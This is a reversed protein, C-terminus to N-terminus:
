LQPPYEKWAPAPLPEYETEAQPLFLSVYSGAALVKGGHSLYLQLANKEQPSPFKFPSALVFVTNAADAPLETPPRECLPLPYGLDELLLYAAKAGRSQASYTSPVASEEDGQSLVALVIIIPLLVLAAWLLLKRDSKDIKM